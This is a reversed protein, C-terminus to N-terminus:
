KNSIRPSPMNKGFPMNQEKAFGLLLYPGSGLIEDLPDKTNQRDKTSRKDSTRINSKM